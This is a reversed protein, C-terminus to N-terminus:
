KEMDTGNLIVKIVDDIVHLEQINYKGYLFMFVFLLIVYFYVCIFRFYSMSSKKRMVESGGDDSHTLSEINYQDQSAM